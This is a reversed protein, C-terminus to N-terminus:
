CWMFDSNWIDFTDEVESESEFVFDYFDDREAEARYMRKRIQSM